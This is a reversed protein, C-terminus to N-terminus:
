GNYTGVSIKGSYDSWGFAAKYNTESIADPVYINNLNNFGALWNYNESIAPVDAVTPASKTCYITFNNSSIFQTATNLNSTDLNGIVLTNVGSTNLFGTMNNLGDTSWTRIDLVNNLLSCFKFMESFDTVNSVNWTNLGNVTVLTTCGNFMQQLSTCASTVWGTVDLSTLGKCGRFTGNYNGSNALEWGTTEVTALNTCGYFAAGMTQGSRMKVVLGRVATLGTMGRFGNATGFNMNTVAGGFDAETIKARDSDTSQKWTLSTIVSIEGPLEEWEGTGQLTYPTTDNNIYISTPASAKLKVTGTSATAEIVIDGTILSSPITLLNNSFTCSSTVNVGNVFVRLDNNSQAGSTPAITATYDSTGDTSAAGNSTMNLLRNTISYGEVAISEAIASITIDSTITDISLLGLEYNVDHHSGTIIINQLSPLQKGTVGSALSLTGQWGGGSNVSWGNSPTCVISGDPSNFSVTFTGAAAKRSVINVSKSVESSSITLSGTVDSTSTGSYTVTVSTGSNVAAATLTAPSVSFGTGSVSVTVSQTLNQGKVPVTKSVSSGDAAITGIDQTSSPATIKPTLVPTGGGSENEPWDFENAIVATKNGSFALAALDGILGNIKSRLTEVNDQIAQYVEASMGGGQSATSLGALLMEKKIKCFTNAGEKYALVYIFDTDELSAVVEAISNINGITINQDQPM